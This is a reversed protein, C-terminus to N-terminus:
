GNAPLETFWEEIIEQLTDVDVQKLKLETRLKHLNNIWANGDFNEGINLNTTRTPSLDVADSIKLELAQVDLKLQSLKNNAAMAATAAVHEARKSKIEKNTATLNSQFKNM